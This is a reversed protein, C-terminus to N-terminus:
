DNPPVGRRPKRGTMAPQAEMLKVGQAKFTKHMAFDLFLKAKMVEEFSLERPSVQAHAVQSSRTTYLERLEDIAEPSAGVQALARQLDRLENRLKNVRLIRTVVFNELGRYFCLFAERRFDIDCFNM